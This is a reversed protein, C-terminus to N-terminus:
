DRKRECSYDRSPQGSRVAECLPVQEGNPMRWLSQKLTAKPVAATRDVPPSQKPLIMSM